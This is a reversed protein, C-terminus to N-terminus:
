RFWARWGLAKKIAKEVVDKEHYGVFTKTVRGSGDVIFTAPIARRHEPDLLEGWADTTKQEADNMLILYNTPHEEIYKRVTKFDPEGTDENREVSVGIVQVGKDGYKKQLEIFHPMEEICPVCWTAWFDVVRVKGDFETLSRVNGDLDPLELAPAKPLRACAAVLVVLLLAAGAAFSKLCRLM